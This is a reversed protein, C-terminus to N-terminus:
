QGNQASGISKYDRINKYFKFLYKTQTLLYRCQFYWDPFSHHHPYGLLIQIRFPFFETLEQM